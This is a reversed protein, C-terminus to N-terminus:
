LTRPIGKAAAPISLGTNAPAAIAILETETTELESSNRRQRGPRRYDSPAPIMEVQRLAPPTKDQFFRNAVVLVVFVVIEFFCRIAIHKCIAVPPNFFFM